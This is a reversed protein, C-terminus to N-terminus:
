LEKLLYGEEDGTITINGHIAELKRVLYSVYLKLASEDFPDREKNAESWERIIDDLDHKVDPARM